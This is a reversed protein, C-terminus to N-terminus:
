GWDTYRKVFDKLEDRCTFAENNIVEIALVRDIGVIIRKDIEKEIIYRFAKNRIFEKTLRYPNLDQWLKMPIEINCEFFLNNGDNLELCINMELAVNNYYESLIQM